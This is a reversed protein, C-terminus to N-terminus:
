EDLYFPNSILFPNEPKEKIINIQQSSIRSSTKQINNENMSNSKKVSFKSTKTKDEVEKNTKNMSSNTKYKTNNNINTNTYVVVDEQKGGLLDHVGEKSM